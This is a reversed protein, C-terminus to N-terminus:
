AEKKVIASMLWATAILLHELMMKKMAIADLFRSRSICITSEEEYVGKQIITM